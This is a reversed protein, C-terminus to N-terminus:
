LGYPNSPQTCPTYPLSVLQYEMVIIQSGPPKLTTPTPNLQQV